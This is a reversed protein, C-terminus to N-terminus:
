SSFAVQDEACAEAPRTTDSGGQVLNAAGDVLRVAGDEAFNVELVLGSKSGKLANEPSYHDYPEIKILKM